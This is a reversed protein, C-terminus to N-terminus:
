QKLEKIRRLLCGVANELAEKESEGPKKGARLIHALASGKWYDLGQMLDGADIGNHKYYDPSEFDEALSAFRRVKPADVKPADLPIRKGGIM